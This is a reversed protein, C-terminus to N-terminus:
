AKDAIGLGWAEALRRAQYEVRSVRYEEDDLSVHWRSPLFRFQTRVAAAVHEDLREPDAEGSLVALALEQCVDARVAEPLTRPVLDIIKAILAAGEAVASFNYPYLLALPPVPQRERSRRLYEAVKGPNARQWARQVERIHDANAARWAQRTARVRERNEERYARQYALLQDHNEARYKVLYIKRAPRAAVKRAYGAVKDPNAQRWLKSQEDLRERNRQYHRRAYEKREEQHQEYYARSRIVWCPKCQSNLRVGNKSRDVVGFAEPPKEIGCGTCRRQLNQREVANESISGPM